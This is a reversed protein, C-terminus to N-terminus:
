ACRGAELSFVTFRASLLDALERLTLTMSSVLDVQQVGFFAHQAFCALLVTELDFLISEPLGSLQTATAVFDQPEHQWVDFALLTPDFAKLDEVFRFNAKLMNANFHWPFLEANVKSGHVIRALM